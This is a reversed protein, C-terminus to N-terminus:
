TDSRYLFWPLWAREGHILTQKARAYAAYCAIYDRLVDEQGESLARKKGVRMLRATDKILFEMERDVEPLKVEIGIREEPGVNEQSAEFDDDLASEMKDLFDLKKRFFGRASEISLRQLERHSAHESPHTGVLWGNLQTDYVGSETNFEYSVRWSFMELNLFGRLTGDM